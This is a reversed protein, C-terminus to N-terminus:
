LLLFSGSPFVLYAVEILLIWIITSLKQSVANRSSYIYEYQCAASEAESTGMCGVVLGWPKTSACVM